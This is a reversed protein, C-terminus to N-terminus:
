TRETGSLFDMQEASSLGSIDKELVIEMAARIFEVAAKGVAYDSSRHETMSSLRKFMVGLEDEHMM